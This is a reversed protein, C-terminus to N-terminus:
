DGAARALAADIAADDPAIGALKGSADRVLDRAVQRMEKVASAGAATIRAEAEDGAKTLDAGLAEHRAAAIEAAKQGAEVTVQHANARAKAMAAQYAELTEEAEKRVTEARKLDAEIRERRAQLVESVRPLAVKSVTLFLIVFIIALWVIQPLFTAVDLQPM